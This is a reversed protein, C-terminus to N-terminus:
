YSARLAALAALLPRAKDRTERLEAEPESDAVIGGGTHVYARGDRLILTRIVVSLDAGGRVDFYGIAGSYIGRRVPELRDLLKMAAIKPAGTMSGPPFSARLVDVIDLDARVRGTVTSVMQFVSAYAEIAMFEPVAVSATECVRGLDNRVLDVIMLNEARDKQSTELAFRNADDEAPHRGRARTGKIPRSEVTRDASLRLFREPSSSAITFGPLEFYSAFPAPNVARLQRYLAWGDRDDDDEFATELRRTLCAQYVNGAGIEELATDIAKRYGSDDLDSVVGLPEPDGAHRRRNRLRRARPPPAAVAAVLADVALAARRAAEEREEGFGLGWAGLTDNVHDYVLVRDVFLLVLDPLGLDDLARLRLPEIHRALEYGLYGVAGGIFPPAGPVARPPEPLLTRILEFPDADFELAGLRLGPRVPRRCELDIRSGHARAVLYPDAGAFSYRGLNASPLSSDLLWPYPQARLSEFAELANGRTSVERYDAAAHGPFALM